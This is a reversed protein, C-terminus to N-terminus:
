GRGVLRRLRRYVRRPFQSWRMLKGNQVAILEQRSALLEAQERRHAEVVERVQAAAADEEESLSRDLAEAAARNGDDPREFKAVFQYTRANPDLDVLDKVLPLLLPDALAVNSTGPRREVRHFGTVVLGADRAFAFMSRRTFFRVHTQDLLGDPRYTWDGHLLAIRVDHFAVNPLSVVVFGEPSLMGVADRLVTVPDRLHELVDGAMVVDFERPGLLEGLGVKDLDGVLVDDAVGRAVDASEPDIEVGVVHHGRAKLAATVYGTACGLELVRRDHGTFQLALTHNTVVREDVVQEYKKASGRIDGTM